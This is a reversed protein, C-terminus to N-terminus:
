VLMPMFSKIRLMSQCEAIIRTFGAFMFLISVVVFKVGVQGSVEAFLVLTTICVAFCIACLSRLFAHTDEQGNENFVRATIEVSMSMTIGMMGFIIVLAGVSGCGFSLPPESASPIGLAILASLSLVASAIRLFNKM